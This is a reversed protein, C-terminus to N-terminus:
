FCFDAVVVGAANGFFAISFHLRELPDDCGLVWVEECSTNNALGRFCLFFNTAYDKPSLIESFVEEAFMFITPPFLEMVKAPVLPAALAKVRASSKNSEPEDVESPSAAM